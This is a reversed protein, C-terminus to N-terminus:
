IFLGTIAMFVAGGVIVGNILIFKNNARLM